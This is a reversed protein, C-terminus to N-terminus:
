WKGVQQGTRTERANKLYSRVRHPQYYSKSAVLVVFNANMFAIPLSNISALEKHISPSTFTRQCIQAFLCITIRTNIKGCDLFSFTASSNWYRPYTKDRPWSNYGSLLQTVSTKASRTYEGFNEQHYFAMNDHPSKNIKKGRGYHSSSRQRWSLNNIEKHSTKLYGRDWSSSQKRTRWNHSRVDHEDKGYLHDNPQNYPSLNKPLKTCHVDKPLHCKIKEQWHCITRIVESSTQIIM